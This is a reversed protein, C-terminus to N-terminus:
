HHHLEWESEIGGARSQHRTITIILNKNRAGVLKRTGGGSGRENNARERGLRSTATASTRKPEHIALILKSSSSRRRKGVCGNGM